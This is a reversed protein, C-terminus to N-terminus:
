YLFHSTSLCVVYMLQFRINSLDLAKAADSSSDVATDMNPIRTVISHYEYVSLIYLITPNVHSLPPSAPCSREAFM